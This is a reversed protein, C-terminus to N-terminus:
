VGVGDQGCSHQSHSLRYHLGSGHRSGVSLCNIHEWSCHRPEWLSWCPHLKVYWLGLLPSASFPLMVDNLLGQQAHIGTAEQFM